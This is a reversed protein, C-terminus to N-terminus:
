PGNKFLPLTITTILSSNPPDYRAKLEGQQSEIIVRARYLGLGYHGRRINQLPARSWNDTKLDFGKKPERLELYFNNTDTRTSFVINGKGRDHQFANTFIEIIAQQLLGPDIQLIEDTLEGNWSISSSEEPLVKEIRDRLDQLFDASRYQIIQPAAPAMISTLKQLGGALESVVERLSTVEGKLESGDALEALLAAHLEIGNLHNRLDHSLQRVFRM